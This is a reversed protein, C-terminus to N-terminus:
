KQEKVVVALILDDFNVSSEVWITKSLGYNSIEEKVVQGLYIGKYSPKDYGSLVVRDGALINNKSMVGTVKFLGTKNDYGNLVGSINGDKAEIIVSLMNDESVGTILDVECVKKSVKSVFGILGENSIVAFDKNIGSDYGKSIEIKDFWNKMTHNIVEAVVYENERKDLDLSKRLEENEKELYALKSSLVNTSFENVSYSNSVFYSNIMSSINKFGKEILFYNRNVLVLFSCIFFLFMVIVTFLVAKKKSKKNNFNMKKRM